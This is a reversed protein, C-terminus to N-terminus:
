LARAVPTNIPVRLLGLLDIVLAQASSFPGTMMQLIPRVHPQPMDPEMALLGWTFFGLLGAARLALGVAAAFFGLRGTADADPLAEDAREVGALAATAELGARLALTAVVGARDALAKDAPAALDLPAAEVWDALVAVLAPLAGTLTAALGGTLDAALDAALDTALLAALGATLGVAM